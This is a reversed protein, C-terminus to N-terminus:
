FKPMIIPWWQREAVIMIQPLFVVCAQSLKVEDCKGILMEKAKEKM